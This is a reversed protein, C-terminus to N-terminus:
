NGCCPPPPEKPNYTVVRHSKGREPNSELVAKQTPEDVKWFNLYGGDVITIVLYFNPPMKKRAEEYIRGRGPTLTNILKVAVEFPVGFHGSPRLGVAQIESVTYDHWEQGSGQISMSRLPEQTIDGTVVVWDKKGQELLLRRVRLIYQQNHEICM